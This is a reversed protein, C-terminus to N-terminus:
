KVTQQCKTVPSLVSVEKKKALSQGTKALKSIM